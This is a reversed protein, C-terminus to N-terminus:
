KGDGKKKARVDALSPVGPAVRALRRAELQRGLELVVDWRREDTAVRMAYALSEEIRLAITEATDEPASPAQPAPEAPLSGPPPREGPVGTGVGQTPTAEGPVRAGVM